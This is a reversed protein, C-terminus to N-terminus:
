MKVNLWAPEGKKVPTFNLVSAMSDIASEKSVHLEKLLKEFRFDTMVVRFRLLIMVAEDNYREDKTERFQKLARKVSEINPRNNKMQMEKMGKESLVFPGGFIRFKLGELSWLLKSFFEKVKEGESCKLPM